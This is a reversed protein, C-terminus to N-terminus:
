TPDSAPSGAGSGGRAPSAGSASAARPSLLSVRPASIRPSGRASAPAAPPAAASAARGSRSAQTSTISGSTWTRRAKGLTQRPSYVSSQAFVAPERDVPRQAPSMQELMWCGVYPEATQRRLEWKFYLPLDGLDSLGGTQRCRFCTCGIPMPKPTVKLTVALHTDDNAVTDTVEWSVCEVIGDFTASELIQKFRAADMRNHEIIKPSVFEFAHEIDAFLGSSLARLQEDVVELPTLSPAPALAEGRRAEDNANSAGSDRSPRAPRADTRIGTFASAVALSVVVALQASAGMVGDGGAAPDDGGSLVGHWLSLTIPAM